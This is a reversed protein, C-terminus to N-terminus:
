PPLLRRIVTLPKALPSLPTGDRGQRVEIYKKYKGRTLFLGGNVGSNRVPPEFISITDDFTFYNLILDRTEDEAGGKVLHVIFRLVTTDRQSKEARAIACSVRCFPPIFSLDPGALRRPCVGSEISKQRERDTHRRRRERWGWGRGWPAM